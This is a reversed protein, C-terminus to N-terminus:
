TYGTPAYLKGLTEKSVGKTEKVFILVFIGGVFCCAAYISFTMAKSYSVMIPTLFGIAVVVSWNLFVAVSLGASPLIEALYLWLIPGISWEFFATFTLVMAINLGNSAEILVFLVFLGLAITM